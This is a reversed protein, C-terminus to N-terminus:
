KKGGYAWPLDKLLRIFREPLMEETPYITHHTPPQTGGVNRGDATIGLGQPLPTGAPLRYYHGTLNAQDPDSFTSMGKPEDTPVLMGNPGTVLDAQQDPAANFGAIRPDRPGSRNGFAYVDVPVTEM